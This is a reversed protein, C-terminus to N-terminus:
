YISPYEPRIRYRLKPYGNKKKQMINNYIWLKWLYVRIFIFNIYFDYLEFLDVVKYYMVNKKSCM